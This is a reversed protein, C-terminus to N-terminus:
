SISLRQLYSLTQADYIVIYRHGREEIQVSITKSSVMPAGIIYGSGTVSIRSVYSGNEDRIEIHRGDSTAAAIYM